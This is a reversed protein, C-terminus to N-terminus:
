GYLVDARGLHDLRVFRVGREHLARAGEAVGAGSSRTPQNIHAVIVDGDAAAAIRSAVRGAPLSAGVDANLSYGAIDFGWGEIAELAPPSYFGTAARYWKPPAGSLREVDTAGDVVERKITALDGAAQIGFIRRDGLVPPVHRDGHNEIAFLDPHARLFAVGEPHRRIWAGTAFITAPVAMEVLASAIRADFGGPCADLTLAVTEGTSSRAKLKMRPEILGTTSAQAAGAGAILCAGAATLFGRRSRGRNMAM